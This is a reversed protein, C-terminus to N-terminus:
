QGVSRGARGTTGSSEMRSFATPAVDAFREPSVARWVVWMSQTLDSLASATADLRIDLTYADEELTASNLLSSLVPAPFALGFNDCDLIAMTESSSM